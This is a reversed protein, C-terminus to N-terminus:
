ITSLPLPWAGTTKCGPFLGRYGNCFLSLPGWSWDTSTLFIEGGVPSWIGSREGRLSIGPAEQYPVMFQIKHRIHKFSSYLFILRCKEECSLVLQRPFLHKLNREFHSSNYGSTEVQVPFTRHSGELKGTVVLFRCENKCRSAKLENYSSRWLEVKQVVHGKGELEKNVGKKTYKLPYLVIKSSQQQM